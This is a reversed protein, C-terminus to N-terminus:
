YINLPISLHNTFKSATLLCIGFGGRFIGLTYNEMNKGSLRGANRLIQLTEMELVRWPTLEYLNDHKERM